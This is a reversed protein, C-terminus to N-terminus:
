GKSLQGATKVVTLKRRRGRKEHTASSGRKERGARRELPRVGMAQRCLKYKSSSLLALSDRHAEPLPCAHTLRTDGRARTGGSASGAKKCRALHWKSKNDVKVARPIIIYSTRELMPLPCGRTPSLPTAAAIAQVTMRCTAECQAAARDLRRQGSSSSFGPSSAVLLFLSRRLPESRPFAM